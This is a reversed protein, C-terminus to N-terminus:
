RDMGMKAFATVVDEVRVQRICHAEDSVCGTVCPPVLKHPQLVKTKVGWAGFRAPSQADSADGTLPFRSVEIVPIGCAAAIHKPGSDCGIFLVCHALVAATENISTRGALNLIRGPIAKSIFDGAQIDKPGGILAVEADQNSVLWEALASFSEKPWIRNPHSAGIGLAILKKGAPIQALLSDAKAKDEGSVWAELRDSEVSAGLQKLYDLNRAVEHTQSSRLVQTYFRDYDHNARHKVASVDESFAIRLPAKSAHALYGAGYYDIDWRPCLALDFRDTLYRRAFNTTQLFRKYSGRALPKGADFVLVQNVYPCNDFLQKSAPTTVLTIKVDDGVNRRLERLFPSM